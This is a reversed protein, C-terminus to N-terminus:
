MELFIKGQSYCTYHAYVSRTRVPRHMGFNVELQTIQHSANKQSTVGHLETSVPVLTEFLVQVEM